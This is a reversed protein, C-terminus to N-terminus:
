LEIEEDTLDPSAFGFAEWTLLPGWSARLLMGWAPWVCVCM